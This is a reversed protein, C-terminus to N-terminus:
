LIIKRVLQARPYIELLRCRALPLQYNCIVTQILQLSYQFMEMLNNLKKQTKITRMAWIINWFHAPKRLLNNNLYKNAYENVKYVLAM